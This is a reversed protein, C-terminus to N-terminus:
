ALKLFLAGLPPLTLSISFNFKHWPEAHAEILEANGVSSGWYYISDSNLIEKYFGPKPVGIKYDHRPVPTANFICIVFDGNKTKRLFSFISQEVDQFDIWEFGEPDHDLEHLAKENKYIWNYTNYSIKLSM